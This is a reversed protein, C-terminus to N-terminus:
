SKTLREKVTSGDCEKLNNCLDSYMADVQRKPGIVLTTGSDVIAACHFRKGNSNTTNCISKLANTKNIRKTKAPDVPIIHTSPAQISKSSDKELKKTPNPVKM